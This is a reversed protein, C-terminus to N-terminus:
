LRIGLVCMDDTQPEIGKWTDFQNELVERQEPVPLTHLQALTTKLRKSGFRKQTLYGFQDKYGDSGLYIMTDPEVTFHHTQYHRDKELQWGGVPFKNGQIEVFKNHQVIYLNDYAGAFQLERTETDFSCIGIELWDNNYGFETGQHFTEIWKKDLENLVDGVKSFDKGLVIYNLFSVAMVSLIAGSVGHGTCDGVAFFRKAGKGGIWYLDGGIIGQPRYIVFYNDFLRKFHRENPLIGRQVSEAYYISDLLDKNSKLLQDYQKQLQQYRHSDPMLM